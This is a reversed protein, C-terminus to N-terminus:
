TIITGYGDPRANPTTLAFDIHAIGPGTLTLTGSIESGEFTASIICDGPPLNSFRYVGDEDSFVEMPEGNPSCKLIVLAGAIFVSEQTRVVGTIERTNQGDPVAEFIPGVLSSQAQSVQQELAGAACAISLGGLLVAIIPKRQM